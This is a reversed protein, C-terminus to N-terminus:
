ITRIRKRAIPKQMRHALLKQEQAQGIRLIRQLDQNTLIVERGTRLRLHTYLKAYKEELAKMAPKQLLADDVYLIKIGEDDKQALLALRAISEKDMGSEQLAKAFDTLFAKPIREKAYSPDDDSKTAFGLKRAKSEILESGHYIFGDKYYLGYNEPKIFMLQKKEDIKGFLLHRKNAPLLPLEGSDGFRIDIGYHRFQRQSVTFHSSERPYAFPNYSMNLDPDQLTQTLPQNYQKQKKYGSVMGGYQAVYNMLFTHLRWDLDEIVFTGEEFFQNNEIAQSYFFWILAIISRLYQEQGATPITRAQNTLLAHMYYAGLKMQGEVFQASLGTTREIEELASRVRDTIIHAFQQAQPAIKFIYLPSSLIKIHQQKIRAIDAGVDGLLKTVLYWGQTTPISTINILQGLSEEVELSFARKIENLLVGELAIIPLFYEKGIYSTGIPQELLNNNLRVFRNIAVSGPADTQDYVKAILDTNIQYSDAQNFLNAYNRIARTNFFDTINMDVLQGDESVKLGRINRVKSILQSNEIRAQALYKRETYLLSQTSWGPIQPAGKSYLHYLHTFNQPSMNKNVSYSATAPNWHYEYIPSQFYILSDIPNRKASQSMINVLHATQGEAIIAIKLNKNANFAELAHLFLDLLKAEQVEDIVEQPNRPGYAYSIIEVENTSPLSSALPRGKEPGSVFRNEALEIAMSKLANFSDSNSNTFQKAYEEHGTHVLIVVLKNATAGNARKNVAVKIYDAVRNAQEETLAITKHAGETLKVMLANTHVQWGLPASVVPKPRVQPEQPPQFGLSVFSILFLFFVSQKMSM